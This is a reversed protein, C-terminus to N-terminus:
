CQLVELLPWTELLRRTEILHQTKKTLHVFLQWTELLRWTGFPRRACYVLIYAGIQTNIIFDYVRCIYLLFLFM